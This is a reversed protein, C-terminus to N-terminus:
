LGVAIFTPPIYVMNVSTLRRIIEGQSLAIAADQRQLQTMEAALRAHQITNLNLVKRTDANRKIHGRFVAPRVTELVSTRDHIAKLRQDAVDLANIEQLLDTKFVTPIICLNKQSPANTLYTVYRRHYLLQRSYYDLNLIFQRHLWIASDM